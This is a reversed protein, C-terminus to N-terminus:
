VKLHMNCRDFIYFFITVSFWGFTQYRDRGGSRQVHDITHLITVFYLLFLLHHTVYFVEYPIKYRYYSTGGMFLLFVVIGYGTFMIESTMKSCFDKDGFSCLAGFYVFFGVTAFLTLSIMTYGLYIHMKLAKNLPVFRNVITESLAGISFKSMTLPILLMQLLIAHKSGFLITPGVRKWMYYDEDDKVSTLNAQWKISGFHVSFFSFLKKIHADSFQLSFVAFLFRILVSQILRVGYQQPLSLM